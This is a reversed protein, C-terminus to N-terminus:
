KRHGNAIWQQLEQISIGYNNCLTNYQHHGARIMAISNYLDYVYEFDRWHPTALARFCQDLEEDLTM